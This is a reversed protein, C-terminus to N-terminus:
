GHEARRAEVAVRVATAWRELSIEGETEVPSPLKLASALSEMLDLLADLDANLNKLDRRLESCDRELVDLQSV